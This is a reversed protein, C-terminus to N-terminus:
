WLKIAPIRDTYERGNADVFKGCTIIGGTASFEHEHIIQPYSGTRITYNYAVGSKLTFPESFIVNHWNGTYGSWSAETSWGTANWIKVYESHGGTGACPYTYMKHVPIDKSPTITGKHTGSISPYTGEGTDFVVVTEEKILVVTADPVTVVGIPTTAFITGSIGGSGTGEPSVTRNSLEHIENIENADAISLSINVDSLLSDGVIVNVRAICWGVYPNHQFAIVTYNGAPLESFTYDGDSDSTTKAFLPEPKEKILVVTADAVTIVGGPTTALVTGSIGGSGTGEPSVTKNSLENIEKKGNADAINLSINVDSLLSDGVIVNVRAICWGVYPNHQFAIVTYNGAPLESFIYNGDSDSTTKAFLPEPKEKILVITADAVTIVGGPTTALVTGSIGGSGTGEPSVTRNSLEHIENIENADAISLSINVDSLLSDGVIVNVRAICWGVYPNHQFAIVTYNGAPLESFTYDGDSDSTTKAFLPEPKEKILVVTADAVTIVGGPTTALVTGSIGGSGTGEPSVTKNSLENIEKKGNADAINLSINVDSLLSDGVIVNVRAICWGVYPNHQFAIVTYNGAPLESFTYDGDSDSTTKAFLPEPKEKILVVTADAVTIVGGPTTALVTGSIGGSGTGEPSVTKNSLENIEKKGNADAINLSINVDSLLSDGVIVNVRAICWGVYPNHQFAIVTYNGAPLESFTYDGDSDSATRAFLPEPEVVTKEKILVVTADPLTVVGVPTTALLTGSIGGSGTGEPSVPKNSLENIEKIGNADAISLSINVGSLLSDGVTVNVRAICWGVYPNHQFAIVTYNGAPLESFTYDGDSDSTTKAFLPEPKEKILVVTADAVTIVGGPTTALVTGSIGGSGTGEPSVTKNSLENIETIETTDAISLSINVDSLLSDGVTVNVRAICWGVYPNHQFAIVTYNGAPLESFIYNGDSDSTTKAFLPEPKEKILVITADAVTIVGGPTTALVTGSIGGSGTGEPSVTKNSLENIETIETTDAISLSINVDSLLSDGVTVNVRAICWGVYPNHQFAIVTYNGAPLESFIYNGNSDSTTKAFLPEPEVVTVETDYWDANIEKAGTNVLRGNSIDLRSKEGNKGKVDFEVEALYGSGSVGEGLPLMIIVGVTDADLFRWLHIPVEEGNIEGNKVDTVNVVSSNFSLNFQAANFDTVTDIRIVANFTGSVCEPADVSVAPWLVTVEADYWGANIEKATTNVLKGNFIGLKSKDGSKGKVEFEVEALYGSGNVGEAASLNSIVRITDSDTFNWTYIPVAEGDIEGGRVDTVNVISSNFSLDFQGSNFDTVTDISIMANFSGSVYEPADVLVVTRLVTVEADYWDADIEKAETDRLVGRSVDLKSKEGSKGKVEFEIEALYGSGSAGEVGPLKSIVRVRDSDKFSWMYIPVEKGEIEGGRVDTINVVSSNFSLDFQGSNLDTVNDVDITVIFTEEVYEPANVTVTVTDSTQEAVLGPIALSGIIAAVICFVVCRAVVSRGKKGRGSKRESM